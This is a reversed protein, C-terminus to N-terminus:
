DMLLGGNVEITEGTLYRSDNSALFAVVTATEQPTGAYRLPIMDVMKKMQETSTFREHFPTLIVGPAVGNVRIGFPALEKALGKTLTLVAGKAAAYAIAGPGGGHRAAISSVNIVIGQKQTTMIRAVEQTCVFVSHVNLKFVEDWYDDSMELFPSRAVLSGANNVLCDIRGLKAVVESVMNRIKSSSRMDAKFAVAEGNEDSISRVTEGAGKENAFYHVAVRYGRRALEIASAQGIGSSAGTVLAVRAEGSM